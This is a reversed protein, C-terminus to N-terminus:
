GRTSPRREVAERVVVFGRAEYNALAHPGDLSCTDVTVEGDPGALELARQTAGTLLAGGLGRGRFSALLGFTQIEAGGDYPRLEAYGAPTGRDSVVWTEVREAWAQWEADSWGAKDTWDFDRGIQEYMRRNFPGHPVEAREVRATSASPRLEDLRLDWVTTDVLRLPGPM